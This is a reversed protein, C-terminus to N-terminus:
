KSVALDRALALAGEVAPHRLLLVRANPAHRRLHRTAARRVRLSSRFVGGAYVVPVVRRLWGMRRLLALALDALDRGAEDCLRRAVTDRRRAAELVLPFLAAVEVATLKKLVVQSIDALKLARCIRATLQTYPGRGDFDRLASAMAKRGLDYGSGADDLFNGWGGSRLVRGRDDRGYAISGTGSIVVVGPSDAIAARLAIAADSTVLHYRAPFVKHLWRLLRKQVQPRDTGAVGVCVAELADREAGSKLGAPRRARVLRPAVHAQRLVDRTALLIQRQASKIGVKLPNSPGAVARALVRGKEDSLWATTSTGGGDIGVFYKM